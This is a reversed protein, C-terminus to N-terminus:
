SPCCGIEWEINHSVIDFWMVFGSESVLKLKIYGYALFWTMHMLMLMLM